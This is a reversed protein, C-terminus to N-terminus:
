EGVTHFRLRIRCFVSIEMLMTEQDNLSDSPPFWLHSCIKKPTITHSRIARSILITFKLHQGKLAIQLIFSFPLQPKGTVPM